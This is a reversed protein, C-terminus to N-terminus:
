EKIFKGYIYNNNTKITVLYVGDEFNSVDIGHTAYGGPYVELRMRYVLQGSSNFIELEAYVGKLYKSNIFIRDSAPNPTILIMASKYSIEDRSNLITDCSSGILPGLSYSPNNPLGYYTRKGNLYFGFPQYDCAAGLSDPNNIVSLNENVYNRVSDPYPYFPFGWNYYRSVYIKNDPGLRIAGSEIPFSLGDLTDCSLPIDVANLNYQLLYETDSISVPQTTVYFISGSPSYAGEWFFRNYNATQEPFIDRSLGITGSCRDFDFESMYGAQNILMFKNGSPHWIVKQLDADYAGSLDHIQPAYVSDGTVLYVYFRNLHSVTTHTSLKNIIWWDRGNGHKVATLCDGSNANNIQINQALMAGQGNNLSIDIISYYCGGNNVGDEGVSFLYYQNAYGPKPILVLEAYWNAGTISDCGAIIQNNSNFVRADWDNNLYHLTAAYLKLNGTSDSISVCSGRSDISSSIPVPIATNRFDIGASDGFIWISNMDQALALHVSSILFLIILILKM